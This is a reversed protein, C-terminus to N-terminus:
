RPVSATEPRTSVYHEGDVAGGELLARRAHEPWAMAGAGPEVLAAVVSGRAAVDGDLRVVFDYGVSTRGVHAVAVEVDVIQQPMLRRSFDVSVHVRPCRGVTVGAIGLREHLLIEAQEAWRLVSTFHQHGAADTDSWEVRRQVTIRAPTPETGANETSIL